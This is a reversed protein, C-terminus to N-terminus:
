RASLARVIRGTMGWIARGDYNYIPVDVAGGRWNYEARGILDYPFDEGVEPNLPYTYVTPENKEFFSLPVLFAEEVEDSSPTMAAVAAADVRALVPHMLFGGQHHIQDLLAIPHVAAPPIGLEEETERLACALADEGAEQKGGPFCVEGPQHRLSHARVEFLLFVEGEREMLPVLVAYHDRVGLVTPVHGAYRTTLEDITM